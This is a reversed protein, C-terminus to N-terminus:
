SPDAARRRRAAATLALGGLALGMLPAAGPLPVAAPASQASAVATYAVTAENGPAFISYKLSGHTNFLGLWLKGDFTDDLTLTYDFTEDRNRHTIGVTALSKGEWASYKFPVTNWFVNGGASFSWDKNGIPTIPAFSLTVQQAGSRLGMFALIDYDNGGSWTGKIKEVGSSILTPKAFHDSFDTLSNETLTAAGAASAATLGLALGAVLRAQNMSM